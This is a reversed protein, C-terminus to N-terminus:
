LRKFAKNEQTRRENQEDKVAEWRQDTTVAHSVTPRVSPCETPKSAADMWLRDSSPLLRNTERDTDRPEQHNVTRLDQFLFGEATFKELLGRGHDWIRGCFGHYICPVKERWRWGQVFLFAFPDLCQEVFFLSRVAQEDKLLFLFRSNLLKSRAMPQRKSISGNRWKSDCAKTKRQNRDCPEQIGLAGIFPNQPCRWTPEDQLESMMWWEREM